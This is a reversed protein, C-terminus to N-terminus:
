FCCAAVNKNWDNFTDPLVKGNASDILVASSSRNVSALDRHGETQFYFYEALKGNLDKPRTIEFGM